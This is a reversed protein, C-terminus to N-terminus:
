AETRQKLQIDLAKALLKIEHGICGVDECSHRIHDCEGSKAERDVVAKAADYLRLYDEGVGNPYTIRDGVEDVWGGRSLKLAKERLTM